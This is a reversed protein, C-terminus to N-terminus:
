TLKLQNMDFLFIGRDHKARDLTFALHAATKNTKCILTFSSMSNLTYAAVEPTDCKQQFETTQKYLKM